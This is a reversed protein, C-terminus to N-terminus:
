NRRHWLGQPADKPAEIVWRGIDFAALNGDVATGNLEIARRIAEESLPLLGKQWAAGLVLMNSYISDGLLRAGLATADFFSLREGLRAQLSLTLQDAPLRFDRNQTFEGTIIEHANVAAGTRG